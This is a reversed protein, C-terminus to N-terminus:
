MWAPCAPEAHFPEECDMCVYIVPTKRNKVLLFYMFFATTIFILVLAVASANQLSFGQPQSDKGRSLALSNDLVSIGYVAILFLATGLINQVLKPIGPKKEFGQIREQIINEPLKHWM